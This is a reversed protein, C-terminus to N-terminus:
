GGIVRRKGQVTVYIVFYFLSQFIVTFLFILLSGIDGVTRGLMEYHTGTWSSEMLVYFIGFPINPLLFCWRPLIGSACMAGLLWDLLFLVGFIMALNRLMKTRM